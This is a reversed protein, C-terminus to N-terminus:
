PPFPAEVCEILGDCDGGREFTILEGALGMADHEGLVLVTRPPAPDVLRTRAVLTSPCTGSTAVLPGGASSAFGIQWLDHDTGGVVRFACTTAKPFGLTLTEVPCNPGPPAVLCRQASPQSACGLPDPSDLCPELARIADCLEVDRVSIGTTCAGYTGLDENCAREGISCGGAVDGSTCPLPPPGMGDCRQDIVDCIEPDDATLCAFCAAPDGAHVRDIRPDLPACDIEDPAEDCDADIGAGIATDFGPQDDTDWVVCEGAPSIAFRQPLPALALTRVEGAAFAFPSAAAALAVDPAINRESTISATLQLPGIADLAGGPELLFRYPPAVDVLKVRPLGVDESLFARGHGVDRVQSGVHLRLVDGGVQEMEAPDWTVEVLIATERECAGLALLALSALLPRRM